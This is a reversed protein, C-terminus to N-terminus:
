YSLLIVLNLLYKSPVILIIEDSAIATRIIILSGIFFTKKRMTAMIVMRIKIAVGYRNTISILLNVGTTNNTQIKEM